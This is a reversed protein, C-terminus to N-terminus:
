GEEKDWPADRTAWSTFLGGQICSVQTWDRPQSSRRSFPFAVWDLIRAQLIGHVTYDMPDCLSLCSQAAKVKKIGSVAKTNPIGPNLPASLQCSAHLFKAIYGHSLTPHYSPSSSKPFHPSSLLREEPSIGWWLTASCVAQHPINWAPQESFKLNSLSLFLCVSLCLSLYRYFSTPYVPLAWLISNPKTLELSKGVKPPFEKCFWWTLM